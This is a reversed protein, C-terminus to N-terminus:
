PTMVWIGKYDTMMMEVLSIIMEKEVMSPMVEQAVKLRTAAKTELSRMTETEVLSPTMVDNGGQGRIETVGTLTPQIRNAGAAEEGIVLNGGGIGGGVIELSSSGGIDSM